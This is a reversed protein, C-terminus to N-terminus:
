DAPCFQCPLGRSYIIYPTVPLTTSHQTKPHVKSVNSFHNCAYIYTTRLHLTNYMDDSSLPGNTNSKHTSLPPPELHPCRSIYWNSCICLENEKCHMPIKQRHMIYIFPTMTTSNSHSTPLLFKFLFLIVAFVEKQGKKCKGMESYSPCGLGGIGM